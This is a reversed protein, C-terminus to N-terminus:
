RKACSSEAMSKMPTCDTKMTDSVPINLPMTNDSCVTLLRRCNLASPLTPAITAIEIARSIAGTNLASITVARAPLAIAASIPLMRTVSCISASTVM